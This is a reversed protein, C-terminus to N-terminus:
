NWKDDKEWVSLYRWYSTEIENINEDLFKRAADKEHKGHVHCWQAITLEFPDIFFHRNKFYKDGEYKGDELQRQIHYFDNEKQEDPMADFQDRTVDVFRKQYSGGNGLKVNASDATSGSLISEADSYKVKNEDTIKDYDSSQSGMTFEDFKGASISDVRTLVLKSTKYVDSDNISIGDQFTMPFKDAPLGPYETGGNERPNLDIVCHSHSFSSGGGLRDTDLKNITNELNEKISNVDMYPVARFTVKNDSQDYSTVSYGLGNKMNGFM